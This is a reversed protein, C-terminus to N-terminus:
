WNFQVQATTSGENRVLLSSSRYQLDATLIYDAIGTVGMECLPSPSHGPFLSLFVDLGRFHFYFGGIESNKIIPVTLIQGQRIRYEGRPFFFYAGMKHSFPIDGFVVALLYASPKGCVSDAMGVGIHEGGGFSTNIATKLLWRELLHGDFRHIKREPSVADVNAGLSDFFRGLRIGEMDVPSLQSNHAGCLIKSTLSGLGIKVEKDKCWSFGKVYVYPEDFLGKSILHERSIGQACGGRGKAWCDNM